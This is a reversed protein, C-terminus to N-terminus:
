PGERPPDARVLVYGFREDTWIGTRCPTDGAAGAPLVLERPPLHADLGFDRRRVKYLAVDQDHGAIRWCTYLLPRDGFSCVRGGLLEAGSAPLPVEANFPLKTDLGAALAGINGSRVTMQPDAAHDAAALRALEFLPGDASAPGEAPLLLLGASAALLTAAAVLCWRLRRGPRITRPSDMIGRVREALGQPVDVDRLRLRLDESEALLASWADRHHPTAKDLSDVVERRIPHDEPLLAAEEMRRLSEDAHHTM